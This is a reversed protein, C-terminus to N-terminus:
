FRENHTFLDFFMEGSSSEWSRPLLCSNLAGGYFLNNGFAIPATPMQVRGEVLSFSITNTSCDYYFSHPDDSACLCDSFYIKGQWYYPLLMPFPEVLRDQADLLVSRPLFFTFLPKTKWGDANHMLEHYVFRVSPSQTNIYHDHELFFGRDEAIMSLFAIPRAEVDVIVSEDIDLEDEDNTEDLEQAEIFAKVLEDFQDTDNFSAKGNFRKSPYVGKVICYNYEQTPPVVTRRIYFLSDNIKQPYMCDHANNLAVTYTDGDSSLHFIGYTDRKKGHFYGNNADIWTVQAPDYISDYFSVKKPSRKNFKKICIQCGRHIFSFGSNDPLISVGLPKYLSYLLPYAVGTLPNWAFLELDDVSKQHIIYIFAPDNNPSSTGVPYIYERATAISCFVFVFIYSMLYKM